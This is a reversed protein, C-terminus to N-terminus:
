LIKRAETKASSAAKALAEARRWQLAAAFGQRRRSRAIWYELPTLAQASFGCRVPRRANAPSSASFPAREKRTMALAAFCDMSGRMLFAKSEEADDQRFGPGYGGINKIFPIPAGVCRLL